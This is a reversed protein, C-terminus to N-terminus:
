MILFDLPDGYLVFVVAIVLMLLLPLLLAKLSGGWKVDKLELTRATETFLGGRIAFVYALGAAVSIGTVIVPNALWGIPFVAYTVLFAPIPVSLFFSLVLGIAMLVLMVLTTQGGTTQPLTLLSYIGRVGTMSSVEIFSGLTFLLALPIVADFLSEAAANVSGGKAFLLLLAGLFFWLTNGGIYVFSTLLGEVLIAAGILVFAILPLLPLKETKEEAATGEPALVKINLGTFLLLCPVTLVLLPMFFGVYPTPLVSGAGNAAIIAPLCNPPLMMGFFAGAMVCVAIKGHSVGQAKMKEGALRGTTLVSLSALGTFMGPLGIFLMVCLAKLFRGRIRLIKELLKEYFGTRYLLGSFVAACAVSLAADLFGFPGEVIERFRIGMGAALSGAVSALLLFVAAWKKENKTVIQGIILVAFMVLAILYEERM